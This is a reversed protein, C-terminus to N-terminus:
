RVAELLDRYEGQVGERRRVQVTRHKQQAQVPSDQGGHARLGPAAAPLWLEPQRDQARGEGCKFM